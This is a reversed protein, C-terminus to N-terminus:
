RVGEATLQRYLVPNAKAARRFAERYDLGTKELDEVHAKFQDAPSARLYRAAFADDAKRKAASQELLQLRGLQLAREDDPTLLEIELEEKEVWYTRHGTAFETSGLRTEAVRQEWRSPDKPDVFVMRKM